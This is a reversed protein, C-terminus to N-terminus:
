KFLAELDKDEPGGLTRGTDYYRKAASKKGSTQMVLRSMNYYAHYDSRNTKIAHNLITAAAKDDGREVECVAKMNLASVDDPNNALVEDLKAIAGDFDGSKLMASAQLIRAKRSNPDKDLLENITRETKIRSAEEEISKTHMREEEMYSALQSELKPNEDKKEGSAASHREAQRAAYKKELETTDTVAVARANERAQALYLSDISANVIARKNRVTAFEPTAAREPNEREVRDLEDLAKRYEAVAEEVKGEAALDSANDIAVSAAEMLESLRPQEKKDNESKSGFPWYWSAQAAWCFAFAFSAALWIRWFNSMNERKM